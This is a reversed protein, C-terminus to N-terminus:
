TLGMSIHDSTLCVIVEYKFNMGVHHGKTSTNGPLLLGERSMLHHSVGM